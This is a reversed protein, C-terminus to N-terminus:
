WQAPALGPAVCEDKLGFILLYSYIVHWGTHLPLWAEHPAVRVLLADVQQHQHVLDLGFQRVGYLKMPMNHIMSCDSLVVRVVGM